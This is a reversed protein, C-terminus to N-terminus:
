FELNPDFDYTAWTLHLALGDITRYVDQRRLHSKDSVLFKHVKDDLEIWSCAVTKRSTKSKMLSRVNSVEQWRGVSAYINSLLVYNGTNEPELELLKSVSLEALEVNLYIRSASLLTGWITANPEVEMKSIFEYAEKLRGYRCFLDVICACHEVKPSIKHESSMIRFLEMGLEVLGAHTCATLLGVFTIDDPKIGIAKMKEYHAIADEAFGNIALGTIMSNWTVIDKWPMKKFVQRAKSINGCKSYMGMLASAMYVNSDMGHSEAYNGIREGIEVSGLQSCASLVSVLTVDNPKIQKSKMCEFLELAESSRGNQAYGAIMASWAVLDREPMRDFVQRAEDVAGCKVYMELLATSVVMNTCLNNDDIFKKVSLGLELNGLKACISLVNVVTFETPRCNEAQMREFIKFGELYDGNHAYCSLISNWSVITRVPMDDFLQRATLVDGSKSYGTILCNYFSPDKFLSGDFIKKASDLDGIKANFDILATQVFVNSNFGHSIVLSHLQKGLKSDLLSTCAKVVPPITYCDIQTDKRRMSVFEEIAEKNLSHRSYASLISNYLTRDPQPIQDFVKRGYDIFSRSLLRKLFIPTITLNKTIILAHVQKFQHIHISSHLLNILHHKM